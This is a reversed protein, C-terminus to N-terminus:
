FPFKLLKEEQRAELFDIKCVITGVVKKVSFYCVFSSQNTTAPLTVRSLGSVFNILIHERDALHLQYLEWLLVTLLEANLEGGIFSFHQASPQLMQGSAPARGESATPGRRDGALGKLQQRESPSAFQLCVPGDPTGAPSQLHACSPGALPWRSSSSPLHAPPPHQAARHAWLSGGAAPLSHGPAWM